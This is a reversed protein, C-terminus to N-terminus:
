FPIEDDLDATDVNEDKINTEVNEQENKQNNYDTNFDRM